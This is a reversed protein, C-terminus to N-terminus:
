EQEKPELGIRMRIVAEQIMSTDVTLWTGDPQKINIEIDKM